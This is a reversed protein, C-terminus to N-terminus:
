HGIRLTAEAGGCFAKRPADVSRQIDRPVTEVVPRSPLDVTKKGVHLASNSGGERDM